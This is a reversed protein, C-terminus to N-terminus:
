SPGFESDCSLAHMAKRFIMLKKNKAPEKSSCPETPFDICLSNQIELPSEGVTNEIETERDTERDTEGDFERERVRARERESERESDM